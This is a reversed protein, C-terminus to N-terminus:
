VEEKGNRLAGALALYNIGDVISDPQYGHDLRALKLEALLRAAEYTTVRHGLVLSFRAAINQFLDFADGYHNRRQEMIHSADGLIDHAKATM